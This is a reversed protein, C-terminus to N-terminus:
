IKFSFNLTDVSGGGYEYDMSVIYADKTKHWVAQIVPGDITEISEKELRAEELFKIPVSRPDIGSVEGCLAWTVSRGGNSLGRSWQIM